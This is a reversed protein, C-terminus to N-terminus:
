SKNYFFIGLSAAVLGQFPGLFFNSVKMLAIPSLQTFPQILLTLSVSFLYVFSLSYSLTFIFKDVHQIQIRDGIVDSAFVGIILSLSPMITPLFWGWAEGANKEFHGFFTQFLMVFFIIGSGSFWLLALCKKSKSWSIQKNM